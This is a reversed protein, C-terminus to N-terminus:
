IKSDIYNIIMQLNIFGLIEMKKIDEMSDKEGAFFFDREQSASNYAVLLYRRQRVKVDRWDVIEVFRAAEKRRMGSDVLRKFMLISYLATRGWVRKYSGKWAVRGGGPIFRFKIWERLRERSLDVIRSVDFTSFVEQGPVLEPYITKKKSTKNM